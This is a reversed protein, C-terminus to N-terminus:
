VIAAAWEEINLNHFILCFDHWLVNNRSLFNTKQFEVGKQPPQKRRIEIKHNFKHIWKRNM